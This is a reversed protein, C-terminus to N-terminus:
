FIRSLHSKNSIFFKRFGCDRFDNKNQLNEADIFFLILRISIFEVGGFFEDVSLLSKVFNISAIGVWRNKVFM